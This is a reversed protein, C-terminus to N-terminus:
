SLGDDSRHVTRVHHRHASIRCMWSVELEASTRVRLTHGVCSCTRAQVTAAVSTTTTHKKPLVCSSILLKSGDGSVIEVSQSAPSIQASKKVTKAQIFCQIRYMAFKNLCRFHFRVWASEKNLCLPSLWLATGFELKWTLKPKRIMFRSNFNLIAFV